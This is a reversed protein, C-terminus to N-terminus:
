ASAGDGFHYGATPELGSVQDTGIQGVRSFVANGAPLIIHWSVILRHRLARTKVMCWPM